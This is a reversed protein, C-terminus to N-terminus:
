AGHAGSRRALRAQRAVYKPPNNSSTSAEAKLAAQTWTRALDILAQKQEESSKAASRLAEEAYQRFDDAKSM